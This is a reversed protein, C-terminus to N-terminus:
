HWPRRRYSYARTSKRTRKLKSALIKMEDNIEVNFRWRFTIKRTLNYFLFATAGCSQAAIANNVNKNANNTEMTRSVYKNSWIKVNKILKRTAIQFSVITKYTEIKLRWEYNWCFLKPYMSGSISISPPFTPFWIVSLLSSSFMSVPLPWDRSRSPAMYVSCMNVCVVLSSSHFNSIKFRFRFTFTLKVFGLKQVHQVM